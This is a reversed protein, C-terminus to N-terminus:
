AASPPTNENPLARNWPEVPAMRSEAGTTPM